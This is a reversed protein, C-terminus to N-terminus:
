KLNDRLRLLIIDSKDYNLVIKNQFSVYEFIPMLDQQLCTTVFKQLEPRANYLTMAAQTQPNDFGMRTKAVIKGNPLAIFSIMSGDEKNHITKIKKDKLVSYQSETVQNLNWFKHLMLYRKWVKGQDFVFSIGRIERADFVDYFDSYQPLRYNFVSVQYGEIEFKTEYFILDTKVQVLHVCEEYTPLYFKM